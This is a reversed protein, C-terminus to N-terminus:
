LAKLCSKYDAWLPSEVHARDWSLECRLKYHHAKARLFDWHPGDKWSWNGNDWPVFDVALGFQHASEYMGARTTNNRLAELQRMPHRYTEFPRFWVNIDGYEKAATLARMLLLFDDRCKAHLLNMDATRATQYRIDLQAM